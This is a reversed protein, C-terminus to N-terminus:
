IRLRVKRSRIRIQIKLDHPVPNAKVEEKLTLVNFFITEVIKSVFILGQSRVVDIKEDSLTSSIKKCRDM